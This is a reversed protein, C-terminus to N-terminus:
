SGGVQDMIPGRVCVDLGPDMIPGRVCVDLGPDMIFESVCVDLVTTNPDRM